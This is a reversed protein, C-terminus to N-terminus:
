DRLFPQGLKVCHFRGVTVSQMQYYFHVIIEEWLSYVSSVIIQETTM